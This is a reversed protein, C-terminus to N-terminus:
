RNRESIIENATKNEKRQIDRLSTGGDDMVLAFTGSDIDEFLGFVPLIGDHCGASALHQYISYERLVREHGTPELTYNVEEEPRTDKDPFVLKVVVKHVLVEGSELSIQAVGRHATGTAGTLIPESLTITVYQHPQYPKRRTPAIFADSPQYFGPACSPGKRM